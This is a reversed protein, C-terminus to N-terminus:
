HGGFTMQIVKCSILIIAIILVYIFYLRLKPGSSNLGIRTGVHTGGIGGILMIGLLAFDINDYKYNLLVAFLSVIWVLILSTGAAKVSRQGVVYILLRLWLVGGGDGMLGTLIGVMMGMVVLPVIPLRPEELSTFRGFPFM